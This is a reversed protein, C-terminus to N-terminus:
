IKGCKRPCAAIDCPWSLFQVGSYSAFLSGLIKASILRSRFYAGIHCKRPCQFTNKSHRHVVFDVTSSSNQTVLSPMQLHPKYLSQTLTSDELRGRSIFRGDVNMLQNTRPNATSDICSRPETIITKESFDKFRDNVTANTVVNRQCRWFFRPM